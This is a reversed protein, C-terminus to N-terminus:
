KRNELKSRNRLYSLTMYVKSIIGYKFILAPAKSLDKTICVILSPWKQDAYQRLQSESIIKMNRLLRWWSDYIWINRLSKIGHKKILIFAEPLEISPNNICSQTVQSQSIGINILSQNIYIFNKNLKLVRSYFETDVRWKLNEDYQETISRHILTVSPPGVMNKLLLVDPEKLILRKGTGTLSIKLERNEEEYFNTYASFIFKHDAHTYKVFNELSETTSFWDDDHMLKVWEGKAKSIAFNWNAPTGLSRENKYYKIPLKGEYWKIFKEVSDDDSDDSIIIEFNKYTQILISELLRELYMVRKYAPVCISIFCDPM